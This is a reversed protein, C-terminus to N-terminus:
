STITASFPTAETGTNASGGTVLWLASAVDTFRYWDGIIGGTTTGNLSVTDDASEAKWANPSDDSDITSLGGLFGEDTAAKVTITASTAATKLVVTYVDGTGTANPLQFVGNADSWLITKNAHTAQTLAVTGGDTSAVISASKDCQTNIEAGTSIIQTGGYTLRGASPWIFDDGASLVMAKSAAGTGLTTIDLFELEAATGTYGDMTNLEAASGTYAGLVAREAATIEPNRFGM